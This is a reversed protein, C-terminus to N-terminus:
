FNGNIGSQYRMRGIIEIQLVECQDEDLEANFFDGNENDSKIILGGGIRKFVRKLMLEGDVVLGFVGGNIPISKDARDLLVSNGGWISPEMSRGDVKFMVADKPKIGTSKIFDVSFPLANKEEIEIILSGNGASLKPSLYPILIETEKIEDLSNYTYIPRLYSVNSEPKWNDPYISQGETLDDNLLQSKSVGFFDALKTVTDGKPEKTIGAAIRFITAQPLDVGEENHMKNPNTRRIFMLHKLNKALQTEETM